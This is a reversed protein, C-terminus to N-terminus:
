KKYGKVFKEIENFGSAILEKDLYLQPVSHHGERIIFEKAVPNTDINEEVFSIGAVRLLGKAMMCYQCRNGSYITYMDVGQVVSAVLAENQKM